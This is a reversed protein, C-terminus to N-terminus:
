AGLESLIKKANSTTEPGDRALLYRALEFNGPLFDTIHKAFFSFNGTTKMWSKGSTIAKHVLSYNNVAQFVEAEQLGLGKWTELALKLERCLFTAFNKSNDGLPLDYNLWLRHLKEFFDHSHTALLSFGMANENEKENVNVNVNENVNVNPKKETANEIVMPKINECNEIVMPKEETDNEIVVPKIDRPRGGQKGNERRRSNADIQPKILIFLAKEVGALEPEIGSLAYENIAFMVKGYQELPLEKLAEHFSQYFVFSKTMNEMKEGMEEPM